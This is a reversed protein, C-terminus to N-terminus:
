VHAHKTAEFFTVNKKLCVKYATAPDFIPDFLPEFNLFFEFAKLCYSHVFCSIRSVFIMRNRVMLSYPMDAFFFGDRRCLLPHSLAACITTSDYQKYRRKKHWRFVSRDKEGQKLQLPDTSNAMFLIFLLLMSSM